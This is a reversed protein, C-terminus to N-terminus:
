DELDIRTGEWYWGDTRRELTRQASGPVLGACKSPIVERLRDRVSSLAPNKIQNVFEKPDEQLDYLEESSDAYRILRYQRDRVAFNEPNHVTIAPRTRAAAPNDLQPKVSTGELSGPPEFGALEVLTPYMDLLEVPEDCVGPKIGSGAFILPVRTSREWLTTKGTMQKEGLHWGHDSWVVVITNDAFPSKQLADLVRQLQSDMFTTGALYARVLNRHQQNRVLWDLDPEPLRWHLYRSFPSCDQLDDAPIEPMVLSEDPYLNWWKPSVHIPVHPLFFGVALFFPKNTPMEGLTKEAWDAVQWDGKQNDSHDFVGWDVWPNNGNPTEPILKQPPMKGPGGWPGWHQFEPEAGNAPNRGGSNHYVKGGSYTVYGQRAFFQPLSVVDRLADVNRFFPELGYIGTTSPRLSTMVSVRSANCLPAQCHANRFIVGRDALSKLAPTKAQPHGGLPECWDNLDDIAIFLINPPKAVPADASSGDTRASADVALCFTLVSSWFLVAVDGLSNSALVRHRREGSSNLNAEDRM